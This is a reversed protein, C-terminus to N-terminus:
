VNNWVVYNFLKGEHVKTGKTTLLEPSRLFAVSIRSGEEMGNVHFHLQEMRSARGHCSPRVLVGPDGVDRRLAVFAGLSFRGDAVGAM